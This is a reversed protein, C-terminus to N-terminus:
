GCHPNGASAARCHLAVVDPRALKGHNPVGAISPVPKEYLWAHLLEAVYLNDSVSVATKIFDASTASRGAFEFAFRHLIMMFTPDGVKLRLAYLAAAGRLSVRQSYLDRPSDIVAPGLRQAAVYRYIERMAADFGLPDDRHRWVVEMYTALGESLWQDTWSAISVSDGFWQHALEHAVLAEDAAGLPFTTMAQTPLAYSLFPDDVVVSGYAEFPYPGVLSEFYPIMKTALLYSEVDKRPTAPTSFVGVPKGSPTRAFKAGFRNIHVTARSPAMPQRMDWVFRREKGVDHASTLMGNAIGAYPAPVTVAITFSAKDDPEENVPFFSAAGVPESMAYIAERYAIWGLSLTPDDPATPNRLPEPYGEYAVYVRVRAHAEIRRPPTVTLKGDAQSFAAKYGNVTVASVDLARLDLTFETLPREALMDLAAWAELHNNYPNVKLELTYHSVDIGDNGFEPFFPDIALAPGAAISSAVVFAALRFV